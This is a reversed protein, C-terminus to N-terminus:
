RCGRSAFPSTEDARSENRTHYVMAIASTEVCAFLGGYLGLLLICTCYTWQKVGGVGAGARHGQRGDLDDRATCERVCPASDCHSLRNQTLMTNRLGCTSHTGCDISLQFIGCVKFQLPSHKLFFYVTRYRGDRTLEVCIRALNTSGVQIHRWWVM